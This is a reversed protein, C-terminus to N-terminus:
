LEALETICTVLFKVLKVVPVLLSLLVVNCLQLHVAVDGTM